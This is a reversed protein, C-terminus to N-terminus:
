YQILKRPMDIAAARASKPAIRESELRCAVEDISSPVAAQKRDLAHEGVQRELVALGEGVLLTRVLEVLRQFVEGFRGVGLAVRDRVAVNDPAETAKRM